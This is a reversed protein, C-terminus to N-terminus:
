PEPQESKGQDSQAVASVAEGHARGTLSHDKAAQSVFWGHNQKREHDGVEESQDHKPQDLQRGHGAKDKKAPKVARDEHAAASDSCSGARSIASHVNTAPTAVAASASLVMASLIALGTALRRHIV